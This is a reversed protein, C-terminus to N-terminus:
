ADVIEHYKGEFLSRPVPFPGFVFCACSDSQDTAAVSPSAFVTQSCLVLVSGTSIMLFVDILLRRARWRGRSFTTTPDDASLSLTDVSVSSLLSGAEPEMREMGELGSPGDGPKSSFAVDFFLAVGILFSLSVSLMLGLLVVFM